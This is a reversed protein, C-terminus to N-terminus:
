NFFQQFIVELDTRNEREDLAEKVNKIHDTIIGDVDSNIFRQISADTNVTWVIAKGKEKILEINNETAELEEMILYDGVMEDTQGISFFYLFGSDM